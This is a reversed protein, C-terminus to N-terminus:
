WRRRASSRSATRSRSRARRSRRVSAPSRAHSVRAAIAVEAVKQREVMSSASVELGVLAVVVGLRRAEAAAVERGADGLRALLEKPAPAHTVDDRTVFGLAVAAEDASDRSPVFMAEAALAAKDAIRQKWEAERRARRRDAAERERRAKAAAREDPSLEPMRHLTATRQIAVPQVIVEGAVIAKEFRPLLDLRLLEDVASATRLARLRVRPDLCYVTRERMLFCYFM